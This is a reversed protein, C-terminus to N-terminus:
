HPRLCARLPHHQQLIKDTVMRLTDSSPENKTCYKTLYQVLAHKSVCSKIDMNARQLAYWQRRFANLIPDNRTSAFKFSGDPEDQKFDFSLVFSIPSIRGQCTTREEKEPVHHYQM